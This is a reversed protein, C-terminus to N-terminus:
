IYGGLASAISGIGFTISFHVGYGSARRRESIYRSLLYNQVPQTGFYFLSFLVSSIILFTGKGLYMLLSFITGFSILILYIMEGRYRGVLRGSLYQGISGSLLALTAVTGGLTVKSLPLGLFHDIKEGMYSPLFTTVAKYTIGLFAATLFFVILLFLKGKLSDGGKKPVPAKKAEQISLSFLGLLIGFLGFVVHPARWGWKAGLLASIVPALSVGLSGAIGHIGFATGIERIRLSLLANSAAHYVSASLGLLGMLVGYVLLTNSFLVSSCILGSSFLYFSILRRPGIRDALFGGPLSGLGFAYSFVTAVIGLHFYNTGLNVIMLPILPPLVGEFLHVLGHSCTTLGLIKKEERNM